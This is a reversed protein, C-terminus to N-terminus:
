KNQMRIKGEIGFKEEPDSPLEVSKRWNGVFTPTAAKKLKSKQKNKTFEDLMPYSTDSGKEPKMNAWESRMKTETRIIPIKPKM